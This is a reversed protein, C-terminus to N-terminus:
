FLILGILCCCVLASFSYGPLLFKLVFAAAALVACCLWPLLRLLRRGLSPTGM